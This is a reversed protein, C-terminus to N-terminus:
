KGQGASSGTTTRNSAHFSGTSAMVNSISGGRLSRVMYDDSNKSKDAISDKLASARISHRLQQKDFEKNATFPAKSNPNSSKIQKLWTRYEVNESPLPIKLANLNELYMKCLRTIDDDVKM